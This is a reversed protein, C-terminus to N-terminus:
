KRKRKEGGGGEKKGERWSEKGGRRLRGDEGNLFDPIVGELFGKVPSRWVAQPSTRRLM